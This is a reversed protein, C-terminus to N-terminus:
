SCFLNCFYLEGIIFPEVFNQGLHDYWPKRGTILTGISRNRKILYEDLRWSVRVSPCKALCFLDVRAAPVVHLTCGPRPSEGWALIHSVPAWPLRAGFQQIRGLPFGSGSTGLSRAFRRGPCRFQATSM